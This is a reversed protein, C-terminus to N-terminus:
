DACSKAPRTLFSGDASHAALLEAVRQRQVPDPCARALFTARAVPDSIALADSFLTEDTM